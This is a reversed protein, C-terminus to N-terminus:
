KFYGEMKKECCFKLLEVKEKHYKWNYRGLKLLTRVVSGEENFDEWIKNLRQLEIASRMQRSFIAIFRDILNFAM